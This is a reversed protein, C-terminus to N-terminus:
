KPRRVLQREKWYQLERRVYQPNLGLSECVNEFSFLWERNEELIWDKAEQYHVKNVIRRQSIYDQYVEIADVLVALMLRKEPEIETKTTYIKLYQSEALVDAQLLSVRVEEASIEAETM